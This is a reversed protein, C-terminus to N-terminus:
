TLWAYEGGLLKHLINPRAFDVAHEIIKLHLLGPQSSYRSIYILLAERQQPVPPEGGTSGESDSSSPPPDGEQEAPADPPATLDVLRVVAKSDPDEEVRARKVKEHGGELPSAHRLRKGLGTGAAEDDNHQDETIIGPAPQKVKYPVIVYQTGSVWRAVCAQKGPHVKEFHRTLHDAFDQYCIGCKKPRRGPPRSASGDGDHQYDM